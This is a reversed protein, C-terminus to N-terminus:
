RSSRPRMFGHSCLKHLGHIEILCVFTGKDCTLGLSPSTLKPSFRRLELCSSARFSQKSGFQCMIGNPPFNEAFLSKSVLVKPLRIGDWITLAIEPNQLGATTKGSFRCKTATVKPMSTQNQKAAPLRARANPIQIESNQERLLRAYPQRYM